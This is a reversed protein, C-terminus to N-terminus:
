ISSEKKFKFLTELKNVILLGLPSFFSSILQIVYYCFAKVIMYFCIAPMLHSSLTFAIKIFFCQFDSFTKLFQNFFSEQILWSTFKYESTLKGNWYALGAVSTIHQLSSDVSFRQQLECSCFGSTETTSKCSALTVHKHWSSISLSEVCNQYSIQINIECIDQM